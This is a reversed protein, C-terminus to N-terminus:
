LYQSTRERHALIVRTKYSGEKYFYEGGEILIGDTTCIYSHEIKSTKGKM